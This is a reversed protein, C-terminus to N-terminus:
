NNETWSVEGYVIIYLLSRLLQDAEHRRIHGATVLKDISPALHRVAPVIEGWVEPHNHHIDQLNEPQLLVAYLLYDALEINTYLSLWGSYREGEFAMGWAVDPPLYGLDVLDVAVLKNIWVPGTRYIGPSKEEAQTTLGGTWATAM